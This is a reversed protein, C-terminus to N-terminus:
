LGGIDVIGHKIVHVALSTRNKVNFEKFFRDRYGDITKPSLNLDDAIQYYTKDTCILQLFQLEHTQWPSAASTKETSSDGVKSIVDSVFGSYYLGNNLFSDLARHLDAVEIDKSIYGKVGSRLMQLISSEASDMTMVLVKMQPHHTKLWLMTELGDMDPMDIDLLLLDPISQKKLFEQLKLGNEAEFLINYRHDDDGMTILKILGKRFLNHDDVIGLNIQHSM